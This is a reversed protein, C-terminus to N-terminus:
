NSLKIPAITMIPDFGAIKMPTLIGALLRFVNDLTLRFFLITGMATRNKMTISLIVDLIVQQTKQENPVTGHEGM